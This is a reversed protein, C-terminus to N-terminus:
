MLLPWFCGVLFARNKRLAALLPWVSWSSKLSEARGRTKQIKKYEKNNVAHVSFRSYDRTTFPNFIMHSLKLNRINVSLKLYVKM